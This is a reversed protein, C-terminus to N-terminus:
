GGAKSQHSIINRTLTGRIAVVPTLPIVLLALMVRSEKVSTEVADRKIRPSAEIVKSSKVNDAVPTEPVGGMVALALMVNSGTVTDLAALRDMAALAFM